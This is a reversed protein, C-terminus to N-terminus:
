KGDSIPDDRFPNTPPEAATKVPAKKSIRSIELEATKPEVPAETPKQVEARPEAKVVVAFSPVAAGASAGTQVMGENRLLRCTRCEAASM